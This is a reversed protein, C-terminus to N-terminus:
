PQTCLRHVFDNTPEAVTWVVAVLDFNMLHHLTPCPAIAIYTDFGPKFSRKLPSPDILKVPMLRSRDVRDAVALIGDDGRWGGAPFTEDVSDGCDLARKIVVPPRQIDRGLTCEDVVLFRVKGVKRIIEAKSGGNVHALVGALERLSFFAGHPAVLRMDDQHRGVEQM